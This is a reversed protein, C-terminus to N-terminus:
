IFYVASMISSCPSYTLLALSHPLIILCTYTRVYHKKEATGKNRHSCVCWVFAVRLICSTRSSVVRVPEIFLDSLKKKNMEFVCGQIRYCEDKYLMDIV